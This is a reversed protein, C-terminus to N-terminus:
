GDLHPAPAAASTARMKSDGVPFQTPRDSGGRAYLDRLQMGHMLLKNSSLDKHHGTRLPVGVTSSMGVAAWPRISM